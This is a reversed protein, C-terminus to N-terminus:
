GWQFDSAAVCFRSVQSCKKPVALRSSARLVANCYRKSSRELLVAKGVVAEAKVM